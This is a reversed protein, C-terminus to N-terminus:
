SAVRQIEAFVAELNKVEMVLRTAMSRICVFIWFALAANCVLIVGVEIYM